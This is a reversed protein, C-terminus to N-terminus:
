LMYLRRKTQKQGKLMMVLPHLAGANLIQVCMAAGSGFALIGPANAAREKTGGSGKRLLMVLAPLAGTKAIQACRESTDSSQSLVYAAWKQDHDSGKKLLLLACQMAGANVIQDSREESNNALNRLACAAEEKAGEPGM